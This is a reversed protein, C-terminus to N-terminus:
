IQHSFYIVQTKDENIKTTWRKSWKEVSNLVHHVKRLVYGEKCETAHLCTDDTFLALHVGTAQSTDNIYMNFLTPSLVSGQPVRAQMKRPTSIEGEV